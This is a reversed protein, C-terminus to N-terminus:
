NHGNCDWMNEMSAIKYTYSCSSCKYSTIVERQRKIDKGFAFHVCGREGALKWEKREVKNVGVRGSMCKQCTVTRETALSTISGLYFMMGVLTAALIRRMKIM